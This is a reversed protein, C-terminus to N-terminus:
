HIPTKPLKRKYTATAVTLVVLIILISTWTPFEPIVTTGKIIIHSTSAHAYTFYLFNHTDNSTQIFEIPPQGDITITWPSDSLLNKPITVNCFGITGSAGTVDFSIQMQPQSFKFTSITSNSSLAVPYMTGQWVIPIPTSYNWVLPIVLPYRDQNNADIMYPTDGLGDGNLDSGNISRDFMMLSTRYGVVLLMSTTMILWSAIVESCTTQLVGFGYAM